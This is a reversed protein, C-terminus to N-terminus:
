PIEGIPIKGLKISREGIAACEGMTIRMASIQGYEFSAHLTAPATLILPVRYIELLFCHDSVQM